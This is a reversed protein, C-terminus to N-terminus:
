LFPPPLRRLQTPQGWLTAMLTATPEVPGSTWFRDRGLGPGRNLLGQTTLVRILQRTVPVGTDIITINSGVVQDIVPRLFPFHTCGLVLTDAGAQIIPTTYHQVWQRTHGSTLEGAEVQKVLEPCPLPMITVDRGYRQILDSFQDSALTAATAMVGVVGTRTHIVAPKVGPEVAVIPMSYKSRLHAAAAVTATNCAIVLAKVGLSQFFQTLTVARHCLYDPTRVGYPVHGSDAVYYLNEYPLAQRIARLISLGGVGSDFVGIPASSNMPLGSLPPLDEPNYGM